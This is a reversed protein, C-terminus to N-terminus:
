SHFGGGLARILVVDQALESANLDAVRRRELVLTDEASLVGLYPALGGQYRATATKYAQEIQGLAARAHGRENRLERISAMADAVDRLSAVFTKDYSGVAEDYSARAGRYAGEIRGGDFIPLHLAPGISGILSGHMFVQGADLSQFGVLGNLDINPYFDAHAVKIRESAAEARLRAAVLDPRRGILDAALKTPLNLPHVDRAHPLPLELGRDPGKGVLAALEDRVGAIQGDIVDEDARASDANAEAQAAAGKNELGQAERRVFLGASQERIRVADEAAAKDASLRVLNAYAGAISTSLLLRSEAFDVRAAEEESTAAAYAARNKGYLDLEYTLGGAVRTNTHWGHPMATEIPQPFGQNLSQKASQSTADLSVNPVLDAGAQRAAADAERLRAEAIRLDPSGQSAEDELRNLEPDGYAVWWKDAPWEGHAGKFSKEVALTQPAQLDPQPGLDPVCASLCLAAALSYLRVSRDITPRRPNM